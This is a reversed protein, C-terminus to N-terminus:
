EGSLYARVVNNVMSARKSISPKPKKLHNFVAVVHKCLFHNGRKDRVNPKSASGRPQGLLYGKEKAWYEPGQWRWYNCTCSVKSGELKIEYDGVNFSGESHEVVSLDEAGKLVNPDTKSILDSFWEYKSM